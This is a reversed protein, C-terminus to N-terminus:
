FIVEIDPLVTDYEMDKGFVRHMADEVISDTDYDEGAEMCEAKIDDIAKELREKCGNTLVTDSDIQVLVVADGGCGDINTEAFRIIQKM